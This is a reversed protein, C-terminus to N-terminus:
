CSSTHVAEWYKVREALLRGSSERVSFMSSLSARNRLSRTQLAQAATAAYTPDPTRRAVDTLTTYSWLTMRIM